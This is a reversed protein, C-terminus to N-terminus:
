ATQATIAAIVAATIAAVDMAPPPTVPTTAVHAAAANAMAEVVNQAEVQPAPVPTAKNAKRWAKAGQALLIIADLQETTFSRFTEVDYGDPLELKALTGKAITADRTPLTGDGSAVRKIAEREAKAKAANAQQTAHAASQETTRGAARLMPVMARVSTPADDRRMVTPYHTGFQRVAYDEKMTSWARDTQGEVMGIAATVKAFTVADPTADSAVPTGATVMAMIYLRWLIDGAAHKLAFTDAMARGVIQRESADIAPFLALLASPSDATMVATTIEAPSLVVADPAIAKGKGRPKRATTTTAPTTTTTTTTSM